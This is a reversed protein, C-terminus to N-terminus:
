EEMDEEYIAMYSLRRRVSPRASIDEGEGEDESEDKITQESESSPRRQDEFNRSSLSRRSCTSQRVFLSSQGTQARKMSLNGFPSSARPRDQFAPINEMSGGADDEDETKLEKKVEDGEISPFVTEPGELDAV